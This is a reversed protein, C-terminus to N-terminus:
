ADVRVTVAARHIETVTGDFGKFPGELLVATEGLTFRSTKIETLLKGQAQEMRTIEDM